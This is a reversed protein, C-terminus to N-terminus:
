GDDPGGAAIPTPYPQGPLEPRQAILWAVVDDVDQATMRPGRLSLWNPMGPRGVVVATRLGQDSVLALYAGDVISGGRYDGGAGTAGHCAACSRAYVLAGRGADGPAGEYPPLPTRRAMLEERFGVAVPLGRVLSEIQEDSLSGGRSRAFAPMATGPVGEATVRRLTAEDAFALYFPEDIWIAAGPIRERAAFRGHCGVCNADYLAAFDTIQSPRLPRSEPRPRGPLSDCGCALALLGAAAIARATM